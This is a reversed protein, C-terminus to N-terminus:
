ENFVITSPGFAVIDATETQGPVFTSSVGTFGPIIGGIDTGGSSGIPLMFPVVPLGGEVYASDYYYVKMRRLLAKLDADPHDKFVKHPPHQSCVILKKPRINKLMGGKIEGTFPYRDTWKKLYNMLCSHEPGFEDIFVVHEQNYGDWWKNTGKAYVDEHNHLANYTKGSGTEGYHWEANCGPLDDAVMAPFDKNLNRLNGYHPVLINSPIELFNGMIACDRAKDWVDATRTGPGNWGASDDPKTGFEYFEENPTQGEGIKLCYEYNQRPTGKIAEWHFQDGVEKKLTTMRKKGKLMSFGQFHEHGTTPCTEVAYVMYSCLPVLKKVLFKAVDVGIRHYHLTWCWNFAQHKSTESVRERPDDEEVQDRSRKSPADPMTVLNRKGTPTSPASKLVITDDREINGITFGIVPGPTGPRGSQDPEEEEGDSM